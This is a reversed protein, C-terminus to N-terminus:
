AAKEDPKKAADKADVVVGWVVSWIQRHEDETLVKASRLADIMASIGSAATSLIESRDM